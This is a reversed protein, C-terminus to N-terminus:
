LDNQPHYVDTQSNPASSKTKPEWQMEESPKFRSKIPADFNLHYSETLPILGHNIPNRGRRCKRSSKSMPLQGSFEVIQDSRSPTDHGFASPIKLNKKTKALKDLTPLSKVM